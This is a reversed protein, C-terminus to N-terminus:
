SVRGFGLADNGLTNVLCHVFRIWWGQVPCGADGDSIAWDILHVNILWYGITIRVSLPFGAAAHAVDLGVFFGTPFVIFVIFWQHTM